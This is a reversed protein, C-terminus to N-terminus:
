ISKRSIKYIELMKVELEKRNNLFDERTINTGLRKTCLDAYECEFREKAYDYLLTDAHNLKEIRSLTTKNIKQKGPNTNFFMNKEKIKEPTWGVKESLLIISEQFYDQIGTFLFNNLKNKAIEAMKRQDSDIINLLKSSDFLFGALDYNAKLASKKFDIDKAIYKTQINCMLKARRTDSFFMDISEDPLVLDARYWSFIPDRKFHYFQSITRDIPERLMTIYQPRAGIERHLGYGFHGRILKFEKLPNSNKKFQESKYTPLLQNWLKHPLIDKKAYHKDLFNTLTTGATKPIHLFYILDTSKGKMVKFSM